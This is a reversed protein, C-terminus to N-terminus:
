RACGSHNSIGLAIKLVYCKLTYFMKILGSLQRMTVHTHPGKQKLRKIKFYDYKCFLQLFLVSSLPQPCQKEQPHAHRPDAQQERWAPLLCSGPPDEPLHVSTSHNQTEGSGRSGEKGTQAGESSQSHPKRDEKEPKAQSCSVQM